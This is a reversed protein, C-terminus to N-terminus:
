SLYQSQEWKGSSSLFATFDSASSLADPIEAAMGPGVGSCWVPQCLTQFGSKVWITVM